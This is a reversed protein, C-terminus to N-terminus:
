PAHRAAAEAAPSLVDKVAILAKIPVGQAAFMQEHETRVNWAPEAAHLDRVLWTVRYGAAAFCAVSDEFLDADDCKFWVEGADALFARYQVLQRTHTLRHKEHGTKKNWPNCFNIYIREVTDPPALIGGIREIDWACLRANDPARGAAAFAEEVKRKAVVLVKDTLDIGLYNVDPHLVAMQSLFGGKGCGLELHLPQQPQAFAGSWAGRRAAPDSEVFPCAALEGAAYPKFRMRM